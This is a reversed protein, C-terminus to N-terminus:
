NLTQEKDHQGQRKNFIFLCFVLISHVHFHIKKLNNALLFKETSKCLPCMQETSGRELFTM